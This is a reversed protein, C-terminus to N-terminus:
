EAAFRTEGRVVTSLIPLDAVSAADMSRINGGVITLDADKTPELSGIRHEAGIAYAADVTHAFLAEELTLRHRPGISTGERTRRLM